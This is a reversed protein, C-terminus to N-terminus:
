PNEGVLCIFDGFNRFLPFKSIRSDLVTLKDINLKDILGTFYYPPILSSVSEIHVINLGMREFEERKRLNVALTYRSFNGSINGKFKEKLYEKRMLLFNLIIDLLGFRNLYCGIFLGGSKLNREILRSLMSMDAIELFGYSSFILDFEEDTNLLYNKDVLKINKNKEIIKDRAVNSVDYCYLESKESLTITEPNPGSGLDLIKRFHGAYENLLEKTRHRMYSQVPNKGVKIEYELNEQDFVKGIIEDVDFRWEGCEILDMRISQNNVREDIDARQLFYSKGEISVYPFLSLIELLRGSVIIYPSDDSYIRVKHKRDFPWPIYIETVRNEETYMFSKM